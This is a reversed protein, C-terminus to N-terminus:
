HPTAAPCGKEHDEACNLVTSCVKEILAMRHEQCLNGEKIADGLFHGLIQALASMAATADGRKSELVDFIASGIEGVEDMEPDVLNGRCMSM